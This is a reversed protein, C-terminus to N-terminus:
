LMPHKNRWSFTEFHEKGGDNNPEFSQLRQFHQSAKLILGCAM